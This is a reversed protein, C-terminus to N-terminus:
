SGLKNFIKIIQDKKEESSLQLFDKRVILVVRYKYNKYDIFNDFVWKIQRKIYNRNVANAFKKPTSIGIEFHESKEFYLIIYKNILQKKQNIIKQFDLNKKLIFEKKM